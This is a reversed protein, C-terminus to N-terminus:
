QRIPYPLRAFYGTKPQHQTEYLTYMHSRWVFCVASFFSLLSWVFRLSPGLEFVFAFVCDRGNVCVYFAFMFAFVFAFVIVLALVSASALALVLVFGWCPSVSLFVFVFLFVSVLLVLCLRLLVFVVDCFGCGLFAVIFLCRSTVKTKRLKINQKWFEM